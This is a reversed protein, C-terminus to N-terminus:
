DIVLAFEDGGIRALMGQNNLLKKLRASVDTLVRDGAAHGHIDNVPKFGDLDILGVIFSQTESSDLKKNLYHAFSRRNALKTLGDQNALLENQANLKQTRRNQQELQQKIKIGNAFTNYYSLTM